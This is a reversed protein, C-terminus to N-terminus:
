EFDRADGPKVLCVEVDIGIRLLIDIWDRQTESLKDNPGKVEAFLIERTAPNWMCLDPFGTSKVSYEKALIGCIASLREGGLY